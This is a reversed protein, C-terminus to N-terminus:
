SLNIISIDIQFPSRCNSSCESESTCGLIPSLPTGTTRTLSGIGTLIKILAYYYIIREENNNCIIKNNKKIAKTKM